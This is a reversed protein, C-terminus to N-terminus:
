LYSLLNLLSESLIKHKNKICNGHFNTDGFFKISDVNCTLLQASRLDTNCDNSWDKKIQFSDSSFSIELLELRMLKSFPYCSAEFYTSNLIPGISKINNDNKGNQFRHRHMDSDLSSGARIFRANSESLCESDYYAWLDNGHNNISWKEM